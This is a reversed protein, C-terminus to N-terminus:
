LKTQNWLTSGCEMPKLILQTFPEVNSSDASGFVFNAIEEQCVRKITDLRDRFMNRIQLRKDPFVEDAPHLSPKSNHIVLMACLVIVLLLLPLKYKKGLLIVDALAM